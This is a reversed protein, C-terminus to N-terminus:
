TTAKWGFPTSSVQGKLVKLNVLIPLSDEKLHGREGVNSWKPQLFVKYM